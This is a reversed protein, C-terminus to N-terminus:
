YYIAIQMQGNEHDTLYITRNEPDIAKYSFSKTQEVTYGFDTLSQAYTHFAASNNSKIFITYCSINDQNQGAWDTFPLNPIYIKGFVQTWGKYPDESSEETSTSIDGVPTMNSSGNANLSVNESTDNNSAETSSADDNENGCAVMCFIAILLLFILIKKM